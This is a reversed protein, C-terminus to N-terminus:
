RPGTAALDVAALLRDVEARELWRWSGPELGQLAVPGYRIRVLREVAGGFARVIRRVERNRGETLVLEVRRRAARGAGERALIRARFPATRGDALEVGERAGRELAGEDLPGAVEAVYTREVEWAPHTLRHALTGHTTFLLLGETEADLRGVYILRAAEIDPVLDYVTRAGGPDSRTTVVGAPKHLALVLAAEVSTEAFRPRVTEGRCTVREVAPDVIAGAETVVRGDVRVLGAAILDEAKRRSAIGAQALYRSLRLEM